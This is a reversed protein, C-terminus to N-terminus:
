TRSARRTTSPPAADPPGRGPPRLGPRRQRRRGRRGIQGQVTAQEFLTNEAAADSAGLSAECEGWSVSVVQARDQNIISSFIDYPGSGPAGSNSNPGQYVLVNAGPALGITNEIDLAAEGGGAGRGAGGDVTVYSVATHTGYCAQYAAIDAPDDPELEYLAITTGAGTDGAAYLGSFGYAAAIQDATYANDIRRRRSPRRM